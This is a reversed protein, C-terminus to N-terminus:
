DCRLYHAQFSLEFNCQKVEGCSLMRKDYGKGNHSCEAVFTSDDATFSTSWRWNKCYKKYSGSPITTGCTKKSSGGALADPAAAPLLLTAALLLVALLAPAPPIIRSRSSPFLSM